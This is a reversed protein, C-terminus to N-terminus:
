AELTPTSGAEQHQAQPQAPSPFEECNKKKKQEVIEREYVCKTQMQAILNLVGRRTDTSVDICPNSGMRLDHLDNLPELTKAGVMSIKNDAFNVAQLKLTFEFLDEDLWEIHNNRLWLMVLNPFQRLDEQEIMKMGIKDADFAQIEKALSSNFRPMFHMSGSKDDFWLGRVDDINYSTNVEVGRTTINVYIFSATQVESIFWWNRMKVTDLELEVAGSVGLCALTALM